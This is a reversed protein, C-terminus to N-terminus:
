QIPAGHFENMTAIAHEGAVQYHRNITESQSFAYHTILEYM